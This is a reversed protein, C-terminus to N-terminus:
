GVTIADATDVYIGASTTEYADDEEHHVEALLWDMRRERLTVKM